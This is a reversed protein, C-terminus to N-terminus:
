GGLLDTLSIGCTTLAGLMSFDPAVTGDIIGQMTEEGLEAVLCELQEPTFPLKEPEPTVLASTSPTPTAAPVPTPLGLGGSDQILDNLDIGCTGFAGLLSLFDAPDVDQTGTGTTVGLLEEFDMEGLLCTIQETTLGTEALMEDTIVGCEIFNPFLDAIMAFDAFEGSGAELIIGLQTPPISDIACEMADIGGAESFGYEYASSELAAREESDLCFIGQFLAFLETPEPSNSFALEATILATKEYACAVTADSLGGAMFALQSLIVTQATEDSVCAIVEEIQSDTLAASFKDGKILHEFSTEGVADVACKVESEPLSSIFLATQTVPDVNILPVPTPTPTATPTPTPTPTSPESSSCAALAVAAFVTLLLFTIVKKQRM